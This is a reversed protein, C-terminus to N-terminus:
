LYGKAGKVADEIGAAESGGANAYSAQGGGGGKLFKQALERVMVGANLGKEKVLDDSIKITISPKGDNVAGLAIVANGKERDLEFAITKVANADSVPIVAALFNIGNVTEFQNRLGERVYGAITLSQQEIVKQLRKGNDQLDSVAKVLDKAKLANKIANVEQEIGSVYQEAGTGTVAELRRVGAAVATEATIKFYGIQGTHKVHCGGCLERSYAPDFTIM